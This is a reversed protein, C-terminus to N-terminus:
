SEQFTPVPLHHVGLFRLFRLINDHAGWTGLALSLTRRLGDYDRNPIPIFQNPARRPSLGKYAM